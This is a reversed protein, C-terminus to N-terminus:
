ILELEINAFNFREFISDGLKWGDPMEIKLGLENDLLSAEEPTILVIALNNKFMAAIEYLKAGEEYMVVAERYLLDCPVAHERYKKGGNKYAISQAITINGDILDMIDRNLVGPDQTDVAFKVRKALQTYPSVENYNAREIKGKNTATQIETTDLDEICKIFKEFTEKSTTKKTLPTDVFTPNEKSDGSIIMNKFGHEGLHSEIYQLEDMTRRSHHGVRIVGRGFWWETKLGNVYAYLYSSTETPSYGMEKFLKVIEPNLSRMISKVEKM